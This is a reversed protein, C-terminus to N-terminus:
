RLIKLLNFYYWIEYSVRYSNLFEVTEKRYREQRQEVYKDIRKMQDYFSRTTGDRQERKIFTSDKTYVMGFRYVVSDTLIEYLETYTNKTYETGARHVNVGDKLTIRGDPKAKQPLADQGMSILPVLMFLITFINRM